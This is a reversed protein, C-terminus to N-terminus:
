KCSSCERCYVLHEQLSAVQDEAPSEGAGSAAGLRVPTM